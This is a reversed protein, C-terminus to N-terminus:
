NVPSTIVPDNLIGDMLSTLVKGPGLEIFDLYGLALCYEISQHWFVPSVLQQSLLRPMEIFCDVHARATANLIIPYQPQHFQFQKLYSYFIEAAAQMLFSHFAGSVKLPIFRGEAFLKSSTEISEKTGSVVTQMPSNYKAIVLSLQNEKIIAEIKAASMGVIAAMAGEKAENMLEARRKVVRLGTAFDFVGAVYFAAYEGLSHGLVMDVKLYNKRALWDMVSICYILPQTYLTQNMVESLVAQEIDYGLIQNAESVVDPFLKFLEQGMGKFQSGQGPFLLVSM